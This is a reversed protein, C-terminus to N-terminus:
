LQIKFYSKRIGAIEVKAELMTRWEESILKEGPRDADDLLILTGKTFWKKMVPVLGSRGGITRGHPGDCIVLGFERPMSILPPDYWYYRGYKKLPKVCLHVSNIEFEDLVKQVRTGWEESNELSWVITGAQKAIIGTVITTLGSGCELIPRKTNLMSHYICSWLYEDHASWYPNNWGIILDKLIGNDTNLALHPCKIFRKLTKYFHADPLGINNLM